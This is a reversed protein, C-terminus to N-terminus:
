TKSRLITDEVIRFESDETLSLKGLVDKRILSNYSPYSPFDVLESNNILCYFANIIVNYDKDTIFACWSQTLLEELFSIIILKHTDDYNYCGLKNLTSFYKNLPEIITNTIINM